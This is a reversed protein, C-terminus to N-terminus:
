PRTGWSFMRSLRKDGLVIAHFLAAAVHVTLLVVLGVVLSRHWQFLLYSLGNEPQSVLNYVPLLSFAEEIRGGLMRALWPALPVLMAVSLLLAHSLGVWSRRFHNRRLWLWAIALLAVVLGAGRHLAFLGDRTWIRPASRFDFAELGTIMSVLLLSAVLVHAVRVAVPTLPAPGRPM